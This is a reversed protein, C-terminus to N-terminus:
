DSEEAESAKAAKAKVAKVAKEAKAAKATRAATEDSTETTTEKAKAAKAEIRALTGAKKAKWQEFNKVLGITKSKFREAQETKGKAVLFSYHQARKQEIKNILELKREEQFTFALRIRDLASDLVSYEKGVQVTTTDEAEQTEVEDTSTLPADSVAAAEEANTVVTVAAADGTIVDLNTAEATEAETVEATVGETSIDAPLTETAEATEVVEAVEEAVDTTDQAIVSVISLLFMLVVFVSLTKM